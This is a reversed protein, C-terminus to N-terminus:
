TVWVPAVYSERITTIRKIVEEPLADIDSLLWSNVTSSAAGSGQASVPSVGDIKLTSRNKRYQQATNNIDNLWAQKEADNEAFVQMFDRTFASIVNFWIVTFSKETSIIVFSNQYQDTDERAVARVGDLMFKRHFTYSLEQGQGSVSAYFLSDSFLFFARPKNSKRCSKLLVGDRVYRRGPVVLSEQLGTISKQISVMKAAFMQQRLTENVFIAVDNIVSFAKSLDVHDEHDKNTHKLLDECLM